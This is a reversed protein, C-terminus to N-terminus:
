AAIPFELTFKTGQGPKSTVSIEGKNRWVLQRVISLGLGTGENGKTSFFPEFIRHMKDEPIGKGTDTFEMHVNDNLPYATIIIKGTEEIAQGANKILNFFIQQMQRKDALIRPLNPALQKEITIRELELEHGVVALAEEIEEPISVLEPKIEKSPKAFNALKKTIESIRKTQKIIEDLSKKCEQVVDGKSINKFVGKKIKELFLQIKTDIINLPNGVEHHIGSSMTGIAARVESQAADTLIQSRSISVAEAKSLTRLVALDESSYDEDSKKKGLSIFGILDNHLMLPLCLVAKLKSMEKVVEPSVGAIGNIKKIMAIDKFGKLYQILKNENDLIIRKGELGFSSYAEYKDAGKNYLVIAAVEPYITKKLIGLTSNAIQDLNWVVMVEDALDQIIEKYEHKKQFLYKNTVNVLWTEIPRLGASILIASIILSVIRGGGFFQTILLTIGVFVGFVFAFTGAFVLTRKIVVEIDMLHHRTIAYAILTPYLIILYNGFPYININFAMPFTTAGGVFGITSALLVYKIQNRKQAGLKKYSKFMLYHAYFVYVIFMLVFFQYAIGPVLWYNFGFKPVVDSIFLKTFNSCLFISTLMYAVLLEKKREHYIELLSFIFQLFFVPLCIAGFNLIRVWFFALERTSSVFVM